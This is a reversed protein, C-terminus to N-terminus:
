VNIYTGGDLPIVVQLPPRGASLGVAYVTYLKNPMLRINPVTLVIDKKGTPRAQLTYVGPNLPIYQTEELYSVDKFVVTGDPLTIDVAPTDPSLHIFRVYSKGLEIPIIPDNILKASINPLKGVAAATFIGRGPINVNTDIVPSKTTGAPFVKINYSGPNIKSYETFGLYPLNKVVPVNNVFIDVNPAGPSAHFFRIYSKNDRAEQPGSGGLGYFDFAPYEWM